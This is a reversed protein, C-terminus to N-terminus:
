GTRPNYCRYHIEGTANRTEWICPEHGQLIPHMLYAWFSRVWSPCKQELTADHVIVVTNIIHASTYGCQTVTKIRYIKKM